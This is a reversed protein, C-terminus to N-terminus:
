GVKNQFRVDNSVIAATLNASVRELAELVKPLEDDRYDVIIQLHITFGMSM